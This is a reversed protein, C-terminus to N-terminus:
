ATRRRRRGNKSGRAAKPHKGLGLQKALQSRTATYNEATMPYDRPLSWRARYQEPSVNHDSQLHRRLTKYSKGCEICLIHTKFLSKRPDVAATRLDNESLQGPGAALRDMTEQITSILLHVDKCASANAPNSLYAATIQSVHALVSATNAM